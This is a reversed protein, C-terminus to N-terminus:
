HDRDQEAREQHQQHDEGDPTELAAAVGSAGGTQRRRIGTAGGDAAAARLRRVGAELEGMHEVESYFLPSADIGAARNHRLVDGVAGPPTLGSAILGIGGALIASGLLLRLWRDAPSGARRASM